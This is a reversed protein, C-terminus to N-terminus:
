KIINDIREIDKNFRKEAMEDRIKAMKERTLKMKNRVATTKLNLRNIPDNIGLPADMDIEEESSDVEPGSEESNEL